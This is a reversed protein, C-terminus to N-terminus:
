SIAQKNETRREQKDAVAREHQRTNGDIHEGVEISWVDIDQRLRLAERWLLHLLEDRKRDFGGHVAHRANDADSRHGSNAERHDVDLEIPADINIASTLEHGLTERENAFLQRAREVRLHSRDGGNHAFDHQDRQGTIAGSGRHIDTLHRVEHQTRLQKGQRADSVDNRDVALDALVTDRGIHCHHLREVDRMVLDLLGDRSEPCVGAAPKDILVAALVQDAVDSQGLPELIQAMRDDHNAVVLRNEQALTAADVESRPHFAPFGAVVSLWSHDDRDLFLGSGIGYRQRAPDLRSQVLNLARKWGSDGRGVNLKPLRGEDLCRNMVDFADQELRSDD